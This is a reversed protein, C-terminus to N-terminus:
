YTKNKKFLLILGIVSPILLNFFFLFIAANFGIAKAFGMKSLIFVSASERIGLDAFSIFSLFSKSFMVMTGVWIFVLLNGGQNFAKVLIAYQLIYVAYFLFSYLLLKKLAVSGLKKVYSVEEILKNFFPFRLSLMKIFNSILNYGQLLAVVILALGIIFIILPISYALNYYKDIFVIGAIGGLILVLFLSAFKELFTAITIQMINKEEFPITRGVYEGVRVPTAIGGSFGYFLSLWIRKDDNINLLSNCVVKWKLFQLYINLFSLLFVLLLLEKDSQNIAAIIEDYHIYNILFYLLAIAILIKAFFKFRNNQFTSKYVKPEINQM